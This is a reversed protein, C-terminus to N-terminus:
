QGKKLACASGPRRFCIRTRRWSGLPDSRERARTQRFHSHVCPVGLRRRLAWRIRQAAIAAFDDDDLLGGLRDAVSLLLHRGPLDVGRADPDRDAAIGGAAQSRRIGDAVSTTSTRM